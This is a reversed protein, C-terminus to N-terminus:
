VFHDAPSDQPRYFQLSNEGPDRLHFERTGWPTNAPRSWPGQQDAQEVIGGRASFEQYLADVDSVKFRYSPRDIPYAWQEPAQWQFHLEASERRLVAYGPENSNDQFLLDFGLRMYFQVSAAVDKAMLVPHVGELCATM